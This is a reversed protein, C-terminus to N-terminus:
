YKTAKKKLNPFTSVTELPKASMNGFCSFECLTRKVANKHVRKKTNPIGKVVFTIIIKWKM